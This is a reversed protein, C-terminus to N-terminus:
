ALVAKGTDDDPGPASETEDAPDAPEPVNDVKSVPISPESSSEAKDTPYPRRSYNMIKLLEEDTLEYQTSIPKKRSENEDDSTESHYHPWSGRRMRPIVLQTGSKSRMMSMDFRDKCTVRGMLIILGSVRDVVMFMFPHDALFVKTPIKPDDPKGQKVSHGEEEVLEFFTKQWLNTLALPPNAVSVEVLGHANSTTLTDLGVRDLYDTVDYGHLLRFKPITVKVKHEHMRYLLDLVTVKPLKNEMDRLGCMQNPVMILLSLNPSMYPLELIQADFDDLESYRFSGTQNLYRVIRTRTESINFTGITVNYDMFPSAMRSEFNVGNVILIQTLDDVCQRKIIQDVKNMTCKKVWENIGDRIPGEDDRFNMPKLRVEFHRGCTVFFDRKLRIYYPTFIRIPMNVIAFKTTLLENYLAKFGFIITDRDSPLQLVNEIQEVGKESAGVWLMGMIIQLAAPSFLKEDGFKKDGVMHVYLKFAFQNNGQIVKEMAERGTWWNYFARIYEM